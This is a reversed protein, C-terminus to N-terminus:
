IKKNIKKGYVPRYIKNLTIVFHWLKKEEFSINNKDIKYDLFNALCLCVLNQYKEDQGANTTIPAKLTSLM